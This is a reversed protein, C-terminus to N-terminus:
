FADSSRYKRAKVGFPKRSKISVAAGGDVAGAACGDGNLM